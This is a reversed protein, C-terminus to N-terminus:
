QEEVENGGRLVEDLLILLNRSIQDFCERYEHPGGGIPDSVDFGDASLVRVRSAMEPFESLIAERHGRTMTVIRDAKELLDRTVQQSEHGHLDIGEGELLIVTEASAPAGSNAALGASLVSFGHEIIEEDACNLQEALMRRFLGEAMPSRCTNGTCVFLIIEGAMRQIVKDSPIGSEVVRWSRGEIVLSAARQDYRVPGDDVLIDLVEGHADGLSTATEHSEGLPGSLSVILPGPLQRLLARLFSHRPITTRIRGERSVAAQMAPSLGPLPSEESAGAFEAIATGPWCRRLLRAPPGSVTGILDQMSALDRFALACRGPAFLPRAHGNSGLTPAAGRRHALASVGYTCELPLGVLGREVLTRAVADVTGPSDGFTQLDITTPM